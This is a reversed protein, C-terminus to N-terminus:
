RRTNALPPGEVACSMVSSHGAPQRRALDTRITAFAIGSGIVLLATAILLSVRFGATFSAPNGYDDGSIGSLAPLAAVAILGAARAVANNVGSAIGAHRVDAAGLVTATLPAVLLALGLGFITVAPLVDTVYHSDPGITRMLLVGVACILPGVTMPLRPGIRQALQGARASLLLMAVTIPLLATGTGLATYGAVVQLQVALLFFVGAFAAYVVFTVANAASFQRSSFMSLPLMPHAQRAEVGVFGCLGLVGVLASVVVQVSSVGLVPTAIIAYTVGALAILALAAGWLDVHRTASPDRTEPIHRIAVAVVVVALPVNVLFVWRWSAVLILWGGLFPGIATAVGGLGSWAGIARARDAPAFSAQIIALSGPTLLAAGVGQLARAAILSGATPAAGCLMSALAFWSVGVMFIRRRGYRDGLAGGLLILSALTLTYATITWQLAAFGVNLDTGIAPLALNVVTADIGALGSGLITALLLWRGPATGYRVADGDPLRRAQPTM